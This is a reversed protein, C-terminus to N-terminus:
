TAPARCWWRAPSIQNRPSVVIDDRGNRGHQHHAQSRIVVGKPQHASLKDLGKSRLEASHRYFHQCSGDAHVYSKGAAWRLSAPPWSSFVLNFNLLNSAIIQGTSKTPPEVSRNVWGARAREAVQASSLGTEPDAVFVKIKPRVPTESKKKKVPLALVMEGEYEHKFFIKDYILSTQILFFSNKHFDSFSNLEACLEVTCVLFFRGYFPRKRTPQKM